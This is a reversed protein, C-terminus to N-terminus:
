RPFKSAKSLRKLLWRIRLEDDFISRGGRRKTPLSGSRAFRTFCVLVRQSSRFAGSAGFATRYSSLWLLFLFSVSSCRKTMGLFRKAQRRSKLHRRVEGRQSASSRGRLRSGRMEETGHIWELREPPAKEIGRPAKPMERACASRKEEEKKRRLLKSLQAVPLRGQARKAVAGESGEELTAVSLSQPHLMRSASAPRHGFSVPPPAVAADHTYPQSAGPGVAECRKARECTTEIKVSPRRNLRALRRLDELQREACHPNRSLDVQPVFIRKRYFLSGSLVKQEWAERDPLKAKRRAGPARRATSAMRSGRTATRRLLRFTRPVNPGSFDPATSRSFLDWLGLWGLIHNAAGGGLRSQPWRLGRAGCQLHPPALTSQSFTSSANSTSGLLRCRLHLCTWLRFFRWLDGVLPKM